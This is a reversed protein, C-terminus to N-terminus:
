ASAMFQGASLGACFILARCIAPLDVYRGFGPPLSTLAQYPSLDSATSQRWRGAEGTATLCAVPLFDKSIPTQQGSNKGPKNPLVCNTRLPLRRNYAALEWSPPRGNHFWLAFIALTSRFHLPGPVRRFANPLFPNRILSIGFISKLFDFLNAFIGKRLNLRHSNSRDPLSIVVRRM